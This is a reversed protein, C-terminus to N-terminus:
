KKNAKRELKDPREMLNIFEMPAGNQDMYTLRGNLKIQSLTKKYEGWAVEENIFEPNTEKVFKVFEVNDKAKAIEKGEVTAEAQQARCSLVSFPLKISKTIPKEKKGLAVLRTNEAKEEKILNTLYIILHNEFFEVDSKEKKTANEKWEKLQQIKVELKAINDDAIKEKAEISLEKEYILSDAWVATELNYIGWREDNRYISFESEEEMINNLEENYNELGM